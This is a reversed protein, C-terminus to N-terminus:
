RVFLIERDNVFNKLKVGEVLISVLADVLQSPDNKTPSVSIPANPTTMAVCCSSLLQLSSLLM